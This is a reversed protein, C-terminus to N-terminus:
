NLLNLRVIEKSYSFLLTCETNKSFINCNSVFGRTYQHLLAEEGAAVDALAKTVYDPAPFDPFGQGLNLPKHEIALQTFENWVSNGVTKYRDPLQFKEKSM